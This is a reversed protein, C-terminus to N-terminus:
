TRPSKRRTRRSPAQALGLEREAKTIEDDLKARSELLAAHHQKLIDHQASAESDRATSSASDKTPQKDAARRARPGAPITFEFPIGFNMLSDWAPHDPGFKWERSSPRLHKEFAHKHWYLSCNSCLVYDALAAGKAELQDKTYGPM